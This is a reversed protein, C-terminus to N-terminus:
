SCQSSSSRTSQRRDTLVRHRVGKILSTGVACRSAARALLRALAGVGDNRLAFPVSGVDWMYVPVRSLNLPNVNGAGRRGAGFGLEYGAAHALREVREDSAGFPYAVARTASPGLRARLTERSRGLEDSVRADDLWTLRPHTATHSAFDFGRVQWREVAGWDLHVLRPWTYRVDWTNAKGIYDGVLFTTATFGLDALVPYAHTALPAYGDDFSLLFSRGGHAPGSGAVREAFDALRLTRWGERALTEMQREFVSESVRTVGLTRPGGVQHYCLVPPLRALSTV